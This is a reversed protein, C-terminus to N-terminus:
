KHVSEDTSILELMKNSAKETNETKTLQGEKRTPSPEGFSVKHLSVETLLIIYYYFYDKNIYNCACHAIIATIVDEV